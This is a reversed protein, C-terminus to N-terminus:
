GTGFRAGTVLERAAVFLAANLASGDALGVEHVQLLKGDACCVSLSGAEHPGAVLATGLAAEQLVGM